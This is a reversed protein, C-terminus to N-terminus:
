GGGHNDQNERVPRFDLEVGNGALVLTRDNMSASSIETLAAFYRTELRNLPDKLCAMETAALNGITIAGVYIGPRSGATTGSIRFGYGNCPGRGGSKAGDIQLTITSGSLNMAGRADTASLLIWNGSVRPPAPSSGGGAGTSACGALTVAVLIALSAIRRGGSGGVESKM